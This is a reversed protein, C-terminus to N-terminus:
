IALLVGVSDKQRSTKKGSIDVGDEWRETRGNRARQSSNTPPEPSFFAGRESRREDGRLSALLLPGAAPERLFTTTTLLVPAQIEM